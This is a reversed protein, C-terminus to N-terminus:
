VIIYLSQFYTKFTIAGNGWHGGSRWMTQMWHVNSFLLERAAIYADAQSADDYDTTPDRLGLLINDEIQKSKQEQARTAAWTKKKLNEM